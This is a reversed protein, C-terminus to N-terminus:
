ITVHRRQREAENLFDQHMQKTKLLFTRWNIHELRKSSKLLEFHDRNQRSLALGDCVLIVHYSNFLKLFEANSPEDLFDSMMGIYRHLRVFEEDQLEHKPRKIEIIQLMNDQNSLVFDARKNPYTFDTLVLDDGTEDKYFKEFERKLTSFAQNSTIPAWHPHILWPAQEILDQFSSELTFEDDKLSEVKEIVKIRDDAIRGFSSLEAVRATRLIGTILGLTNDHGAAAERLKNDLTIHPALMISLQVLNNLHDTDQLEDERITQGVVRALEYANDRISQQDEAPFSENIQTDLNSNEKFLDWVKKKLPQRSILGVKQVIRQGWSEFQQGLDHSWLIDRRDTQILDEEEDLWDVHLEGILYSRISHEGTFGAKRNFINTQAAIKGRCYIRIGAMLEDKYPIKSYGVWGRIPLNRGDYHIFADIDTIKQGTGDLAVYTDTEDKSKSTVFRIETGEMLEVAFEAVTRVSHPSSDTQLSDKLVIKWDPSTLGFRQALQRDFEAIDPVRRHTFNSMRITTGPQATLTGNLEAPVPHYDEDTESMIKDHELLLHAVEYGSILDGSESTKTILKGGASIIEIQKCIGFPALKGVGKRGMVKRGFVRSTDGRRQDNRREAGVRLYFENIEEPTMGIGNDRVEVTYGKDIDRGAQKSALFEGMPAVIEVQTADADYSNSILEAIVASVRDYLKVGLKDVTLRSIRMTYEFSM